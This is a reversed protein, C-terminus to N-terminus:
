SVLVVHIASAHLVGSNSSYATAGALVLRAASACLAFLIICHTRLSSSLTNIMPPATNQHCSTNICSAVFIGLSALYYDEIYKIRSSMYNRLPSCGDCISLPILCFTCTWDVRAQPHPYCHLPRTAAAIRQFCCAISGITYHVNRINSNAVLLAVGSM